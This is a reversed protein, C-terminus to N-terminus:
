LAPKPMNKGEKEYGDIRRKQADKIREVAEAQPYPLVTKPDVATEKGTRAEIWTGSSEAKGALCKQVFDGMSDYARQSTAMHPMLMAFCHPMAEYQEWHVTVGQQAATGAVIAGEDTLLEEGANVYMPPSGSWDKAAVPSVLPHCLLSLDCFIDGRPPNTPWIDDAPFKSMTDDHNASPLYDWKANTEVSKQARSIDLWPSHCAIGAPLPVEVDKGNYRITPNGSVGGKTRQMQLLLQLLAYALNGGASDGAFVIENAPVPEHMAGEPPYMLYLYSNLADLLQSPFASQPALRYEVLLGRGKCTEALRSVAARHTGFGCLYYAGGHFYLVTSKGTRKPDSMLREYREKENIDPLADDDGKAESRFGIWEARMSESDPRVYNESGDGLEEVAKFVAEKTGGEGDKPITVKAAWMKGKAGKDGLTVAQTKGVPSPKATGPSMISRLVSVQVETRLDWKTSTPSLYLSNMAGAYLMAPVKPLIFKLLGLKGEGEM